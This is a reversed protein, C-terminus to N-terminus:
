DFLKPSESSRPCRTIAIEDGGVLQVEPPASIQNVLIEFTGDNALGREALLNAVTAGEKLEVRDWTVDSPGRVFVHM